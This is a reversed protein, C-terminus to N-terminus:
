AVQFVKHILAYIDSKEFLTEPLAKPSYKECGSETNIYLIGNEESMIFANSPMVGGEELFESYEIRRSGPRVCLEARCGDARRNRSYAMHYWPGKMSLDKLKTKSVSAMNIGYFKM